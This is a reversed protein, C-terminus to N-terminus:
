IRGFGGRERRDSVYVAGGGDQSKPPLGDRMEVPSRGRGGKTGRNELLYNNSPLFPM